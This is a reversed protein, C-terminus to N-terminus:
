TLASSRAPASIRAAITATPTSARGSKRTTTSTQDNAAQDPALAARETATDDTNGGSRQAGSASAPYGNVNLTLAAIADTARPGFTEASRGLRVLIAAVQDPTPLTRPETV